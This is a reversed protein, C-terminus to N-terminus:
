YRSSVRVIRNEDITVCDGDEKRKQKLLIGGASVKCDDRKKVVGDPPLIHVRREKISNENRRAYM